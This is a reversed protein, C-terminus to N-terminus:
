ARAGGGRRMQWRWEFLGVRERSAIRLGYRGVAYRALAAVPLATQVYAAIFGDRSSFQENLIRAIGRRHAWHRLRTLKRRGDPVTM